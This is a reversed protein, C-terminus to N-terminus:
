IVTWQFKWAATAAANGTVTFSGAAVAIKYTVLTADNDLPTIIVQSNAGVAANTVVCATAGMAIASKGRQGDITANGPTGTSDGDNGVWGHATSDSLVTATINTGKRLNELVLNTNRVGTNSILDVGYTQYCGSGLGITNEFICDRVSVKDCAKIGLGGVQATIAIANDVFQCDSVSVRQVAALVPTTAFVNQILGGYVGNRSFICGTVNVDQGGEISLGYSNETGICGSLTIFRPRYASDNAGAIFFGQTNDYAECGDLTIHRACSNTGTGVQGIFFGYGYVSKAICGSMTIHECAGVSFGTGYQAGGETWGVTNRAECNVFRLGDTGTSAYIGAKPIGSVECGIVIGSTGQSFAIGDPKKVGALVFTTAIVKCNRMVLNTVKNMQIIGTDDAGYGATTFVVDDLTLRDIVTDCYMGLGDYGLIFTAGPACKVSLRPYGVNLGPSKILYDGPPFYVVGEDDAAADIAAQIAVTDDTVGDGVAGQEQVNVVDSLASYFSSSQTTSM